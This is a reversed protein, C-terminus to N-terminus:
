LHMNNRTGYFCHVYSKFFCFLSFFVTVTTVYATPFASSVKVASGQGALGVGLERLLPNSM